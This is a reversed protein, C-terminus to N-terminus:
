PGIDSDKLAAELLSILNLKNCWHKMYDIDLKTNQVKLVGIIDLWQRESTRETMEFWKIKSIIIDEPSCFYFQSADDYEVLIDKRKRDLAQQSYSDAKQFFVDIKIMTKLHILNFSSARAMADMIMNEDVYYDKELLQKLTSIHCSKIDAVLDIDMTARGIGYMSSAVSGGIYYPISLGNLAAIVPQVAQLIEPTKM